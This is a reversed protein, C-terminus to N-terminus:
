HAEFLSSKADEIDDEEFNAGSLRGKMRINRDRVSNKLEEVEREICEIREMVDVEAM